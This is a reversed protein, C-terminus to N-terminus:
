RMDIVHKLNKDLNRQNFKAQKNDVNQKTCNDKNKYKVAFNAHYIPQKKIQAMQEPKKNSKIEFSKGNRVIGM